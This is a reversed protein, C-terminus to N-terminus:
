FGKNNLKRNNFQVFVGVPVVTNQRHIEPIIRLFLRPGEGGPRMFDFGLDIPIGIFPKGRTDYDLYSEFLGFLPVNFHVGVGVYLFEMRPINLHIAFPFTLCLPLAVGDSDEGTDKDIYSYGYMNMRYLLGSNISLYKNIYFDFNLGFEVYLAYDNQLEQDLIFFLLLNPSIGEGLGLGLLMDFKEHKHETSFVNGTFLLLIVIILFLKKPM